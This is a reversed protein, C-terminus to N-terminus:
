SNSSSYGVFPPKTSVISPRPGAKSDSNNQHVRSHTCISARQKWSRKGRPASLSMDLASLWIRPRPHPNLRTCLGTPHAPARSGVDVRLIQDLLLTDFGTVALKAAADVLDNCRILNTHAKVKRMTRSLGRVSRAKLLGSISQPHLMHHHYRPSVDLGPHNYHYIASM